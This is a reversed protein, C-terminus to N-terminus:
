IITIRAELDEFDVPGEGDSCRLSLYSDSREIRMGANGLWAQTVDVGGVKGRWVNWIKLTTKGISQFRLEVNVVKPATDSWIVMEAAQVDNVCLIGGSVKLNLGQVPPSKWRLLEIVLRKPAPMEYLGYLPQGRWDVCTAEAEEFLKSIPETM